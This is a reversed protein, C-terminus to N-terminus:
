GRTKFVELDTNEEYPLFFLFLSFPLEDAEEVNEV